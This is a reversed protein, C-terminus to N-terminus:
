FRKHTPRSATKKVGMIARLLPLENAHTLKMNTPDGAVVIVQEGLREILGADDTSSLDDQAYARVLLDREFIQPTQIAMANARDIAGVVKHVPSKSEAGLIAAIQDVDCADEIPDSDVRKLTDSITTGPIVASYSKAADFVRDILEPKTAPRAADHIAIHTCEDDVFEIAAQVSQWRHDRGGQVIKAGLLSLRDAHQDQFSQFADADYPGAVIIQYVDDRTNFLEVTRQLVCKGGLDEDLKSRPGLIPLPDTSAQNYRTSSGAAPIIVSIRM